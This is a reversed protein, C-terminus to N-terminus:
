RREVFSNRGFEVASGFTHHRVNSFFQHTAPVINCEKGRAIRIAFSAEHGSACLRKSQESSWFQTREQLKWHNAIYILSRGITEIDNM